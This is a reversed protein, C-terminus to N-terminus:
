LGAGRNEGWERQAQQRALVGPFKQAKLNAEIQYPNDESRKAKGIAHLEPIRKDLYDSYDSM